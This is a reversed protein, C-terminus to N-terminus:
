INFEKMFERLNYIDNDVFSQIERQYQNQSKIEETEFSIDKPNSHYLRTDEKEEISIEEEPSISKNDTDKIAHLKSEKKHKEFSSIDEENSQINQLYRGKDYNDLELLDDTNSVGSLLLNSSNFNGSRILKDQEKISNVERFVNNSSNNNNYIINKITSNELEEMHLVKEKIKEKLKKDNIDNSNILTNYIGIKNPNIYREIKKGFMMFWRGILYSILLDDHGGPPHDIRGNRLKVLSAIESIIVRDHIISSSDDAAIKLITKYYQNRTERTTKVGYIEPTEPDCYIRSTISYDMDIVNDLITGGNFNNELVLISKYFYKTMITYILKSYLATSYYNTRITAIVEYTEPDTVVLGSYDEGVNGSCDGSIIYISGWDISNPDKYLKMRFIDNVILICKPKHINSTLLQVTNQGLPHDKSVSKWKCLVERDLIDQDGGVDSVCQEWYDDGKGLEWYPYEIGMVRRKSETQIIKKVKNIDEDYLSETFEFTDMYFDYAWKGSKTDLFAPTTTIAIFNPLGLKNATKAVERQAFVAASYQIAIQPIHAFEDYWECPCSFGRGVQDAAEASRKPAQKLIKNGLEHFYMLNEGDRDVKNDKFRLYSPLHDRISRIRGTNNKLNNDTNAFCIMETNRGGFYFIWTFVAAVAYTKGTQRPLIAYFPINNLAAWTIALNGLNLEYPVIGSSPIKVCERLYYWPNITCEFIIREKIEESLNEEDFPDVNLLTKDILNLFFANNKIGKKKLFYYIKIFSKNRTSYHIM